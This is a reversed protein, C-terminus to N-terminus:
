GTTLDFVVVDGRDVRTIGLGDVPKDPAGQWATGPVRSRHVVVTRFGKGRLLQVSAADPFGATGSRLENLVPPAYSASGNGILPFGDVSWLMYATDNLSDSPLQWIPGRLQALAAPPQPVDVLPLHPSGEFAVVAACAVAVAAGASRARGASRVRGAALDSLRGAGFGALLALGLSWVFALRGPTRLGSWGPAHEYLPRYFVGGAVSLGLSLLTVVGTGVLLGLRLGASASRWRLGLLALLVVLLGPFLTQEPPWPLSDRAFATAHGWVRSEAPASLLARLPPSYFAVEQEGRTAAPDQALIRLYPRVMLGTVLLFAAVGGATSLVLGRSLRPRGRTLWVAIGVAALAALLYCFWVGLAFGFSIQWAAAFWGAVVQWPRGRRYGSTLLFITLAVGGTSLVNLHGNQGLRWPSWAFAAGTVAAAAPRCGLERALLAAAAFAVAYALLFALNYRIVAAAVGNGFLGLPAYGLLPDSFAGSSAAPFFTNAAFGVGRLARGAEAVFWAQGLPDGADQPVVDSLRRVLPWTLVISLLWGGALWALWELRGRGSDPQPAAPAPEPAPAAVTVTSGADDPASM